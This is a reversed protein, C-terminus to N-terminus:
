QRGHYTVIFKCDVYADDQPMMSSLAEQLEDETLKGDHDGDIEALGILLGPCKKLDAESLDGDAGTDCIEMTKKAIRDADYVSTNRQTCGTATLLMICM